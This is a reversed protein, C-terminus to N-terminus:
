AFRKEPALSMLATLSFKLLFALKINENVNKSNIFELADTYFKNATELKGLKGYEYALEILVKAYVSPKSYL